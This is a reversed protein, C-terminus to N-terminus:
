HAVTERAVEAHRTRAATLVGARNKRREEYRLVAQGDEPADLERVARAADPVSLDDHGGVPLEGVTLAGRVGRTGHLTRALRGEARRANDTLERRTEDTRAQVTRLRAIRNETRTLQELVRLQAVVAATDTM